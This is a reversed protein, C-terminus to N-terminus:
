KNGERYEEILRHLEKEIEKAKDPAVNVISQLLIEFLDIGELGAPDVNYEYGPIFHFSEKENRDKWESM